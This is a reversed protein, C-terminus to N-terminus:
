LEEIQWASRIFGRGSLSLTLRSRFCSFCPGVFPRVISRGCACAICECVLATHLSKIIPISYNCHGVTSPLKVPCHEHPWRGAGGISASSSAGHTYALSCTYSPIDIPTQRRTQRSIRILSRM